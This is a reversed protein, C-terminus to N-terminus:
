DGGGDGGDGSGQGSQGGQDGSGSQGQDGQEQQDGQDDGGEDDGSTSQSTAATKTPKARQYKVIPAPRVYTVKAPAAATAPAAAVTVPTAAPPATVVPVPAFKPLKPLAPPHKARQRQLTRSWAALKARRVAIAHASVTPRAAATATQGLHLTQVAAFLGAVAAATLVLSILTSHLRPM